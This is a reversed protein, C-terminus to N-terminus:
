FLSKYVVTQPRSNYYAKAIDSMAQIRYKELNYKDNYMKLMLNWEKQEKADVKSASQSILREAESACPSSPDVYRLTSLAGSYDNNALKTKAALINEKCRQTQYANYAEISKQQVSAYCQKAERPITSLVAIAQRYQKM